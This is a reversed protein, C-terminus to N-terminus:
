LLVRNLTPRATIRCYDLFYDLAGVLDSYDALEFPSLADPVPGPLEYAWADGYGERYVHLHTRGVDQGDPNRHPRGDLDLRLLSITTRVRLNHTAKTLCIAGRFVDVHFRDVGDTSVCELVLKEGPNPYDRNPDGEYVKEARLLKDAEEQSLEIDAM